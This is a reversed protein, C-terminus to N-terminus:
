AVIVMGNTLWGQDKPCKSPSEEQRRFERSPNARKRKEKSPPSEKYVLNHDNRTKEATEGAEKTVKDETKNLLCDSREM